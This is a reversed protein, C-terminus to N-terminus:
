PNNRKNILERCKNLIENNRNIVDKNVAKVYETVTEHTEMYELLLDVAKDMLNEMPINREEVLRDLRNSLYTNLTTNVPTREKSNM